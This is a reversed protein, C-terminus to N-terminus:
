SEWCSFLSLVYTIISEILFNHDSNLTNESSFFSSLCTCMTYLRRSRRLIWVQNSISANGDIQTATCTPSDVHTLWQHHIEYSIWDVTRSCVCQSVYYRLLKYSVEISSTAPYEVHSKGITHTMWIYKSILVMVRQTNPPQSISHHGVTM